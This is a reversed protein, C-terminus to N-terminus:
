QITQYTREEKGKQSGKFLKRLLKAEDKESSQQTKKRKSDDSHRFRKPIVRTSKKIKVGISKVSPFNSDERSSTDDIRKRKKTTTKPSKWKSIKSGLYSLTLTWVVNMINGDLVRISVEHSLNFDFYRYICTIIIGYLLPAREKHLEHIM